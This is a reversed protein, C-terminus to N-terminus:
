VRGTRLDENRPGDPRSKPNAQRSRRSVFAKLVDNRARRLRIPHRPATNWVIPAAELIAAIGKYKLQQALYLVFRGKIGYTERFKDPRPTRLYSLAWERLM